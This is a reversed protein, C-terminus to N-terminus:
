SHILVTMHYEFSSRSPVGIKTVMLIDRTTYSPRAETKTRPADEKVRDQNLNCGPWLSVRSLIFVLRLGKCYSWKSLAIAEGQRLPLRGVEVTRRALEPSSACTRGADFRYFHSKLYKIFYLESSFGTSAWISLFHCIKEPVGFNLAGAYQVNGVNFGTWVMVNPKHM